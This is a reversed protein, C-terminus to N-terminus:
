MGYDVLDPGYVGERKATIGSPKSATTCNKDFASQLTGLRVGM